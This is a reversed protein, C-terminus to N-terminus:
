IVSSLLILILSRCTYVSLCSMELCLQRNVMTVKKKRWQFIQKESTSCSLTRFLVSYSNFWQHLANSINISIWKNNHFPFKDTRSGEISSLEASFRNYWCCSQFRFSVEVICLLFISYRSELLNLERSASSQTMWYVSLIVLVDWSDWRRAPRFVPRFFSRKAIFSDTKCKEQLCNQEKFSFNESYWIFSTSLM